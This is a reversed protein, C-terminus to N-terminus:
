AVFFFGKLNIHSLHHNGDFILFFENKCLKKSLISILWLVGWNMQHSFFIWSILIWWPIYSFLYNFAINRIFMSLLIRFFINISIIYCHTYPYTMVISSKRPFCFINLIIFDFLIIWQKLPSFLFSKFNAWNILFISLIWLRFLIILLPYRTGGFISSWFGFDVDSKINQLSVNLVKRKIDPCLLLIIAIVIKIWCKVPHRLWCLLALCHFLYLHLSHSPFFVFNM